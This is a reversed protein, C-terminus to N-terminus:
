QHNQYSRISAFLISLTMKCGMGMLTYCLMETSFDMAGAAALLYVVGYLGFV